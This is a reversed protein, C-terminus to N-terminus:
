WRITVMMERGTGYRHLGRDPIQHTIVDPRFLQGSQRRLQVGGSQKGTGSLTSGERAATLSMILFHFIM